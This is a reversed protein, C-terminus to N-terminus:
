ERKERKGEKGKRIRMDIEKKKKGEKSARDTKREEKARGRRGRGEEM